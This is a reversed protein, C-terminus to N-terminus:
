LYKELSNAVSRAGAHTYFSGEICCKEKIWNLYRDYEQPKLKLKASWFHDFDRAKSLKYVLAESDYLAKGLVLVPVQHYMASFGCSSNITILGRANRLWQAIGGTQIIHVREKAGYRDAIDRIVLSHNHHGRELPHVKFILKANDPAHQVFSAISENILELKKWGNSAYVSQMDADLQLAVVYTDFSKLNEALRREQNKLFIGLLFNKVWCYVQKFINIQKHFLKRQQGWTFTENWFYYLGGYWCMNKFNNPFSAVEPTKPAEDAKDALRYESPPMQGSFPSASNNGGYEASIYGPRFYGEEFALVRIGQSECIKRAISHIPRESGFLLVSKPAHTKLYDTFWADWQELNGKFNVSEPKNRCFLRDGANFLIRTVKHEEKLLSSHLRDFFPGVPGQLMLIRESSAPEEPM